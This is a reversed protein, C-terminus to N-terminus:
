RGVARLLLDFIATAAIGSQANGNGLLSSDSAILIAGDQPNETLAGHSGKVLSTDLPILDMLYRFGLKKKLLIKAAKLMPFTIKPDVFLEVPDYGPKRHIDVCRAFDPARSDDLWYYYSFWCDPKAIAILEGSREHSLGHVQKGREDLLFEVEPQQEVLARVAQLLGKDQVYIHAVQHDAVAFVKSAGADLLELGLEERVKLWGQERFLRNLHCAKNVPQIGYESLVVVRYDNADAYDILQGCVADISRLEDPISAHEPGVKQMAYDLHPLYVAAFDPARMELTRVAADAIWQSSVISSKPGWFNFLPFTGLEQNLMPRLEGPATYIDPLKRGDAPYMPRVTIATDAPCYMNYWCFINASSAQPQQQKLQTWIQPAQVLHNSQHWFRIEAQDRFYWGNGVIGHQAPATGTFYTTQVSCTVAPLMSHIHSQAGREALQKLHPTHEGIHKPSLGVVNLVLLKAM